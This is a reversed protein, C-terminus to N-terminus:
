ISQTEWTTLLDSGYQWLKILEPKTITDWVKQMSANIKITSINTPM